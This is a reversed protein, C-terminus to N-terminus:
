YATTYAPRFPLGWSLDAEISRSSSSAAAQPNELTGAVAEGWAAIIEEDMKTEKMGSFWATNIAHAFRDFGATEYQYFQILGQSRTASSM